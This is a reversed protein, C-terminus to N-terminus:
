PNSPAKKYYGWRRERAKQTSPALGKWKPNKEVNAGATAWIQNSKKEVIGLADGFFGQLNAVNQVLVRLNRSLQVEGNVVFKMEM